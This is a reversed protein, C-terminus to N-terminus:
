YAGKPKLITVVTRLLIKLDKRLSYNEVYERELAMREARLSEVRAKQM